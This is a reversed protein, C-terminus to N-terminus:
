RKWNVNEARKVVNVKPWRVCTIGDEFYVLGCSYSINRIIHTNHEKFDRAMSSVEQVELVQVEDGKGYGYKKRYEDDEQQHYYNVDVQFSKFNLEKGDIIVWYLDQIEGNIKKGHLIDYYCLHGEGEKGYYPSNKDIIRIKRNM